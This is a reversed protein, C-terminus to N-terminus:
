VSQQGWHQASKAAKSVARQDAMSVVTLVALSDAKSVDLEAVTLDVWMVVMWADKM